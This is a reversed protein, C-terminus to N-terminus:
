GVACHAAEIDSLWAQEPMYQRNAIVSSISTSFKKISLKLQETSHIKKTIDLNFDSNSRLSTTALSDTPLAKLLLDNKSFSLDSINDNTGHPENVSNTFETNNQEDHNITFNSFTSDPQDQLGNDNASQVNSLTTVKIEFDPKDVNNPVDDGLFDKKLTFDHNIFNKQNITNDGNSSNVINTESNSKLSPDIPTTDIKDNIYSAIPNIIAESLNLDGSNVNNAKITSCNNSNEISSQLNDKDGTQSPSNKDINLPLIRTQKSLLQPETNNPWNDQNQQLPIQTTNKPDKTQNLTPNSDWRRRRVCSIEPIINDSVIIESDSKWESLPANFDNTSYQWGDKDTFLNNLLSAESFALNQSDIVELTWGTLWFWADSESFYKSYVNQPLEVEDPTCPDWNQNCWRPPDTDPLLNYASFDTPVLVNESDDALNPDLINDSNKHESITFINMLKFPLNLVNSVAPLGDLFTDQSFKRSVGKSRENEYLIVPQTSHTELIRCVDFHLGTAAIDYANEGFKNKKEIGAKNTSLLFEVIEFHGKSSANMLATYGQNNSVDIGNSNNQVFLKVIDFFGRASANHLPNWGDQDTISSDAGYRLLTQAVTTHGACSAKSLATEGESDQANLSVGAKFLFSVIDSHNKSAALMLPTTLNPGSPKYLLPSLEPNKLSLGILKNVVTTAGTEISVLLRKYLNNPDIIDAPVDNQIFIKSGSFSNTLSPNSPLSLSSNPHELQINSITSNSYHLSPTKNYFDKSLSSPQLVSTYKLKCFQSWDQRDYLDGYYPHIANSTIPAIFSPISDLFIDDPIESLSLIKSLEESSLIDDCTNDLNSDLTSTNFLNSNSINPTSAFLFQTEM